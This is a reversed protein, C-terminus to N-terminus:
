AEKACQEYLSDIASPLHKMLTEIVENVKVDREFKVSLERATQKLVEADEVKARVSITKSM